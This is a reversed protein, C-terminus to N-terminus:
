VCMLRYSWPKRKQRLACCFSCACRATWLSDRSTKHCKPMKILLFIRTMSTIFNWNVKCCHTCRDSHFMFFDIEFWFHELLLFLSVRLFQLYFVSAVHARAVWLASYRLSWPESSSEGGIIRCVFFFDSRKIISELKFYNLWILNSHQFVEIPAFVLVCGAPM